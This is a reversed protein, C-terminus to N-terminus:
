GKCWSWKRCKNTISLFSILLMLMDWHWLRSCQACICDILVKTQSYGDHPFDKVFDEFRACCLRMWVPLLFLLIFIQFYRVFCISISGFTVIDTRNSESIFYIDLAPSLGYEQSMQPRQKRCVPFRVLCKLDWWLACRRQFRSLLSFGKLTSRWRGM